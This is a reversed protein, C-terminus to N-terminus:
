SKSQAGTDTCVTETRLWLRVCSAVEAAASSLRVTVASSPTDPLIVSTAALPLPERLRLRSDVLVPLGM